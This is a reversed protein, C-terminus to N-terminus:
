LLKERKRRYVTLTLSAADEVQKTQHIQICRVSVEKKIDAMEDETLHTGDM